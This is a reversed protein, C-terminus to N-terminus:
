GPSWTSSASRARRRRLFLEKDLWDIEAFEFRAAWTPFFGTFFAEFFEKLLVKLAPRSGSRHAAAHDVEGTPGSGSPRFPRVVRSDNPLSAARWGVLPTPERCGPKAGHDPWPAKSTAIPPPVPRPTRNRDRGPRSPIPDPHGASRPGAPRRRRAPRTPQLSAHRIAAPRPPLSGRGGSPRVSPWSSASRLRTGLPVVATGPPVIFVLRTGTM